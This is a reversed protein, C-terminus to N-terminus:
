REANIMRDLWRERRRLLQARVSPFTAAPSSSGAVARCSSRGCAPVRRRETFKKKSLRTLRTWQTLFNASGWHRGGRGFDAREEVVEAEVLSDIAREIRAVSFRKLEDYRVGDGVIFARPVTPHLPVDGDFEIQRALLELIERHPHRTEASAFKTVNISTM